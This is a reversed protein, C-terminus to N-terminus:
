SGGVQLPVTIGRTRLSEQELEMSIMGPLRVPEELRGTM